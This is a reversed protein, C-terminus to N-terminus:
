STHAHDAIRQLCRQKAADDSGAGTVDYDLAYLGNRTVDFFFAFQASCNGLRYNWVVGAGAAKEETPSGFTARIQDQTLGVLQSPIPTPARVTAPVPAPHAPAPAPKVPKALVV